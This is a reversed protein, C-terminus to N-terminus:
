RICRDVMIAIAYVSLFVASSPWRTPSAVLSRVAGRHRAYGDPHTLKTQLARLQKNGREYRRRARVLERLGEPVLVEYTIDPVVAREAPAFHWRVWKDDSLVRPFQNWRERGEASVAYAGITVPSQQVYPLEGWASYYARSVASRARNVVLKPAAFHVGTGPALVAALRAIAHPSLVADQDLYLRPGCPLLAEAAQFAVARGPASDIVTCVAGSACIQPALEKAVAATDSRGDNVAIIIHLLGDFRQRALSEMSRRLVAAGHHAPVVVGFAGKESGPMIGPLLEPAIASLVRSEMTMNRPRIVGNPLDRRSIERMRAPVGLSNALRTVMDKPTLVEPGAVHFLGRFQRDGLEIVIRAADAFGVPTRFEDICVSVEDGRQLAAMIRVWTSDRPCRPMGYMLSFRAVAGAGADLVAREGAVKSHGYVTCPEPVDEESYRVEATGDWIFDSSPYLMWGGTAAVYDALIRAVGVNVAWTRHRDLAAEAPSSVGALHVIHTPRFM